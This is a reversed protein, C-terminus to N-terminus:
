RTRAVVERSAKRILTTALPGPSVTKEYSYRAPDSFAAEPILYGLEDGALGLVASFPADPKVEFGFAPLAEGPVTALTLPGLRLADVESEVYGGEEFPRDLIGLKRLAIYGRNQVPVEITRHVWTLPARDVTVSSDIAALATEGLTTGVREMEAFTHAPVDPTVMGGLPGNLFLGVGGRKEELVRRLVGPFDATILTNGGFLVEPHCAFVVATAIPKGQLDDAALVLLERDITEPDRKNKSIGKEPARTRSLRLRAPALGDLAKQAASVAGSLVQELFAPAVGSSIWTPGWLGLTDPASHDHTACVLVCDPPLRNALRERVLKAHHAHIGIVDVAVLVVKVDGVQLALARASLPDHIGTAARAHGFGGLYVTLGPDPTVDVAAAGVSIPGPPAEHVVEPGEPNASFGSPPMTTWWALALAGLVLLLLSLALLAIRVLWKKM